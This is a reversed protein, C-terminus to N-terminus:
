LGGGHHCVKELLAMGVGVFGCKRISGSAILNHPDIVNLSGCCWERIVLCEFM